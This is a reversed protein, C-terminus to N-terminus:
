MRMTVQANQIISALVAQHIVEVEDETLTRDDSRYEFRVTLSREDEALGSGVFDDVFKVSRCIAQGAM